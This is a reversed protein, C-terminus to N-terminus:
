AFAELASLYPDCLTVVIDAKVEQRLVDGGKPRYESRWLPIALSLQGPHNTLSFYIEQVPFQVGIRDGM